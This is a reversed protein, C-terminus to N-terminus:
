LAGGSRKLKTTLVSRFFPMLSNRLDFLAESLTSGFGHWPTESAAEYDCQPCSCGSWNVLDASWGMVPRTCPAVLIEWNVENTQGVAIADGRMQWFLGSFVTSCVTLYVYQYADPSYLPEHCCSTFGISELPLPASKITAAIWHHPVGFRAAMDGTTINQTKLLTKM